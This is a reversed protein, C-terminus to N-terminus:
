AALVARRSAIEGALKTAAILSSASAKGTGALDYATGHDPSTRAFPLGLTLNVARDFALTKIPILAQDHYMAIAADYSARMATSFLTDAPHPGSIDLGAQKAQKIAPAITADEEGGLVGMEGAHPNLGAVAIRPRDIAFCRRLGEATGLITKLIRESTLLAPVSKLPVHVTVPVVKLEDCALMMIPDAAHGAKAALAGLFETHGPHEFGSEHLLKKNIPNTVLASAENTQVLEVAKKISAIIASVAEPQPQGPAIMCPLGDHLVCFADAFKHAAETTSNVRALPLEIELAKARAAFLEADGIMVFPPLMDRHQVWAQIAIDPGIGAPDGMTMALPPSAVKDTRTVPAPMAALSNRHLRRTASRSYLTKLPPRIRAAPAQKRHNEAREQRRAPDSKEFLDCLARRRGADRHSADDPGHQVRAFVRPGAAQDSRRDKQGFSSRIRKPGTRGFLFDFGCSEFKDRLQEAEALRATIATQKAGSPLKLRVRQLDFETKVKTDGGSGKMAKEVDSENIRVQRAFKRRVVQQWAITARLRNKFTGANIGLQGLAQTMQAGTMGNGKAINNLANDVQDDSVVINQKKAEQMQLNENILDDIAKKRMAESPQKRTTASMFRVRQVVDYASIPEDNVLAIISLEGQARAQPAIALCIAMIAAMLVAIQQLQREIM